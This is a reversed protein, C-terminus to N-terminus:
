NKETLANEFRLMENNVTLIIESDRTCHRCQRAIATLVITQKLRRM